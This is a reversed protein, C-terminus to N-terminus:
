RDMAPGSGRQLRCGAGRIREVMSLPAFLFGVVAIGWLGIGFCAKAFVYAVEVPYGWVAAM